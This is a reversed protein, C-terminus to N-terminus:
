FDLPDLFKFHGNMKIKHKSSEIEKLMPIVKKLHKMLFELRENESEMTLLEYEEALKLGVKHAYTFSNLETLEPIQQPQEMLEFLAALQKRFANKKNPAIDMDLPLWDVRGGAYLKGQRPNEFDLLRFIRRGKSKIDMRGDEYTKTVELISMETGLPMLKDLFSCIGFTKNEALCENILQKYRPEFIHLNLNEEPFAVLKLPFLALEQTM